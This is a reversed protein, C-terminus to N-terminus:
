ATRTESPVIRCIGADEWNAALGEDISVKDGPKFSWDRKFGLPREGYRDRKKMDDIISDITADSVPHEKSRLSQRKAQYKADLETRPKPDAVGAISDLIEVAIKKM